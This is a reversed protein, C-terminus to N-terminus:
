IKKSFFDANESVFIEANPNEKIRGIKATIYYPTLAHPLDDWQNMLHTLDSIDGKGTTIPRVTM